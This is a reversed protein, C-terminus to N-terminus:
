VIRNTSKDLKFNEINHAIINVLRQRAQQSSWATHPTLILNHLSKDLLVHGKPPPEISLGDLLAAQIRNEKLALALAEEDILGGRAANILIASPQMQALFDKNVMKQNDNTLPCHLSIIDAQQLVTDFAIRGARITQRNPREAILVQMGFAQALQATAQGTAGFGIIGLKKDQLDFIPYDLLSFNPSNEWRGDISAAHYRSIQNAWNLLMAFVHQAVSVTSYGQVNYVAINASKCAAIEINNYGTAAVCILKLKKAIIFDEANLNVKNSIIVDAQQLYVNKDALFANKSLLTLNDCQNKLLTYDVEGLTDADAFIVNM